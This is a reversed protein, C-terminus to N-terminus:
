CEGGGGGGGSRGDRVGSAQRSYPQRSFCTGSWVPSISKKPWCNAAPQAKMEALTPSSRAGEASTPKGVNTHTHTDTHTHKYSL